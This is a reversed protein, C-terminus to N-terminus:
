PNLITDIGGAGFITDDGLGGDLINDFIDGTILDNFSSGIVNEILYLTDSGAAGSAKKTTLNVIVTGGAKAYSATDIGSGGDLRDNGGKGDLTDHGAGGLLVDNLNGGVLSDNGSGGTISVAWMAGTADFTNDFTSSTAVVREIQGDVLNLSVAATAGLVVARDVGAGGIVSTDLNDFNLTDSGDGGNLSDAGLGGWLMDTGLGGFLANASTNGTMRDDFNSGTLNEVGVLTDIGAGGTNQSTALGLNVRVGATAFAYSATDIEGGGNLIDKGSQGVLTDNGAEGLLIGPVAAGLSNDLRLTDNGARGAITVGKVSALPIGTEILRNGHRIQVLGNAALVTIQDDADTGVVTLIDVFTYSLTPPAQNNGYETEYAGMDVTGGLIRAFGAGRQDTGLPANSNTPDIALTNSGHNIAISGAIPAHTQTLGGNNQLPGLLPNIADAGLGGVYNGNDDITNPGTFALQTGGVFLSAEYSSISGILSHTATLPHGVGHIDPANGSDTNGAVISNQITLSQNAYIGGGISLPAHNDTITSQRVKLPGGAYIAGGDATRGPIAAISNGSFTSQVITLPGGSGFAGVAYIAGGHSNGGGDTHNGSFTSRVVSIDSGSWIAGGPSSAGTTFNGSFTSESIKMGYVSFLAGGGSTNTSNDSFLSRKVEITSYIAVIAGGGGEAFNQTFTSDVVLVSNFQTFIAGGADNAGTATNGSFTSGYVEMDGNRSHIAGGGSGSSAGTISNNIFACQIATLKGTSTSLVAGGFNEPPNSPNGTTILGNKLTMKELKIDGSSINFIRSAQHADVITNASGNGTISLAETIAMQGLSLNITGNLGPAFVIQDHGPTGTDGLDTATHANASNIAERLTVLGDGSTTNDALSNVVIAALLRRRELEGFRAPIISPRATSRRRSSRLISMSRLQTALARIFMLM